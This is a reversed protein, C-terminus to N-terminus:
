DGLLGEQAAGQDLPCAAAALGSAATALTLQVAGQVEGDAVPVSPHQQVDRAGQFLGDSQPHSVASTKTFLEFRQVLQLQLLQQLALLM